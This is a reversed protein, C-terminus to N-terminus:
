VFCAHRHALAASALTLPPGVTVSHRSSLPSHFDRLFPALVMKSRDVLSESPALDRQLLSM